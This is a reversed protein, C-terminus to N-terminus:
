TRLTHSMGVAIPLFVMIPLWAALTPRLLSLGGLSQCAVTALTFAIAVSLCIGISLFVNRQRRSFMLPLGLMLLTTDIVPQVVRTHVAVRVDAGLETSPSSLEDILESTSAYNRWAAGNALLKFSMQSVVFAQGAELWAADRSTLVVAQEGLWLSKRQDIRTPATVGIVLYGAPHLETADLYFGNEGTLQKGYDSLTPPLILTPKIIRKELAVTKEGGILIDTQGDFRAELDRAETGGLDKTSRTLQDRIEPIVLERSAVGLLSVVVAAMLLPRIIRFKSIGAALMATMEQHRQLWTVTFMASIMALIGSTRDFFGISQFGYYTGIVKLLSGEREAEASFSDLHGFLDIVLYLGMLSLFCIVFIQVFQRLLYRDLLKM